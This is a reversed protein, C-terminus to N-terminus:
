RQWGINKSAQVAAGPDAAKLETMRESWYKGTAGQFWPDGASLFRWQSLLEQYSMEDIQKKNEPTLEM